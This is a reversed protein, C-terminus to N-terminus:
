KKELYGFIGDNEGNPGATFYLQNPNAPSILDFTLAWLGSISVPVGSNMLQGQFSGNSNYVNIHGDGFNGILISNVALGFSASASTVQVIGWPSNLTGQSAFRKVFVGAPTFVDVFGKGLGGEDDHNDPAMQKAYTVYLQGGINQVNFPAFGAPLNPDNFTKTTVLGFNADFVDIKANHFDTAYIFNSGGDNALTIGKYVAGSSSRDAVTVSTSASTKNWASIVGDETAFLFLSPGYSPINFDTTNNFVVGTPSSGNPKAGLPINVPALKQNGNNDYVVSNGTHNASIWIIGTPGIAIGWPNLLNTDVRGGGASNDSALSVQQYSSANVPNYTNKTECSIVWVSVSLLLFSGVLSANKVIMKLM